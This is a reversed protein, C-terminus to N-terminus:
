GKARSKAARRKAWYAKMRAAVARRASASMPKRGRRGPRRGGGAASLVSQIAAIQREVRERERMLETLAQKLTTMVNIPM